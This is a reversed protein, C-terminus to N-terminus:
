CSTLTYSRVEIMCVEEQVAKVRWLERSRDLGSYAMVRVCARSICLRVCVSLCFLLPPPFLVLTKTHTRAHTNMRTHTCAQTHTHSGKEKVETLRPPHHILDFRKLLATKMKKFLVWGLCTCEYVYVCACVFRKM